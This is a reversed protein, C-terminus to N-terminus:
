YAWYERNSLLKNEDWINFRPVVNLFLQASKLQELFLSHKLVIDKLSSNMPRHLLTLVGINYQQHIWDHPFIMEHVIFDM